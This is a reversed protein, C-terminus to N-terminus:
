LREQALIRVIGVKDSQQLSKGKCSFRAEICQLKRHARPKSLEQVREKRFQTYLTLIKINLFNDSLLCIEDIKVM